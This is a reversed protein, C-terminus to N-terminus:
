VILDTGTVCMSFSFLCDLQVEIHHYVRSAPSDKTAGHM